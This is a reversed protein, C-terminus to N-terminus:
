ITIEIRFRVGPKAHLAGAPNFEDGANEVLYVETGRPPIAIVRHTMAIPIRPPVAKERLSWM